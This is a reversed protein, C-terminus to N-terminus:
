ARHLCCWIPCAYDQDGQLESDLPVPLQGIRDGHAWRHKPVTSSKTFSSLLVSHSFTVPSSIRPLHTLPLSVRTTHPRFSLCSKALHLFPPCSSELRRCSRRTSTPPFRTHWTLPVRPHDAPSWHAPPLPWPGHLGQLGECLTQRRRGQDERISAGGRNGVATDGTYLVTEQSM